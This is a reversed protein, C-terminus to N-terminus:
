IAKASERKSEDIYGGSAEAFVLELIGGESLGAYQSHIENFKGVIANLQWQTLHLKDKVEPGITQRLFANFSDADVPDGFMVRREIEGVVFETQKSQEPLDRAIGPRSFDELSWGSAVLGLFSERLGLTTEVAYHMLDHRPFFGGHRTKMYTVSGDARECTIVPERSAKRLRVIM